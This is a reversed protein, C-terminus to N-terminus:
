LQPIYYDRRHQGFMGNVLLEKCVGLRDASGIDNELMRELASGAGRNRGGGDGVIM